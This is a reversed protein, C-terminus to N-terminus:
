GKLYRAIQSTRYVTVVVLESETEEVIARLLMDADLIPDHYRRMYAQRGLGAPRILEPAEIARELEERPIERAAM